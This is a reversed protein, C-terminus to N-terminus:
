GGSGAGAGRGLLHEEEGGCGDEDAAPQLTGPNQLQQHQSHHTAPLWTLEVDPSCPPMACRM